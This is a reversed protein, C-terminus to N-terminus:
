IMGLIMLMFLAFFLGTAATVVSVIGLILVPVRKGSKIMSTAKFNKIAQIGFVLGLGSPICGLFMFTLASNMENAYSAVGYSILEVVLILGIYMLFFGINSLIIAAIAKGLKIETGGIYTPQANYTTQPNYTPQQHYVPATNEAKKESFESFVEEKGICEDCLDSDNGIFKGCKKCYM